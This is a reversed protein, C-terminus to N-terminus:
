LICIVQRPTHPTTLDTCPYISETRLNKSKLFSPTTHLFLIHGGHHQSSQEAGLAIRPPTSASSICSGATDLIKTPFPCVTEAFKLSTEISSSLLPFATYPTNTVFPDVNFASLSFIVTEAVLVPVPFTAEYVLTTPIPASVTFILPCCYEPPVALIPVSFVCFIVM